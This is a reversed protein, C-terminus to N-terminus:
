IRKWKLLHFHVHQPQTLSSTFGEMMCDYNGLANLMKKTLLLREKELVTADEINSFHREIFLLDHEETVNDYPYANKVIYWPPVAAGPLTAETTLAECLFCPDEEKIAKKYIQYTDWMEKTRLITNIGAKPINDKGFIRVQNEKISKRTEEAKEKRCSTCYVGPPSLEAWNKKCEKCYKGVNEKRKAERKKRPKKVTTKKTIM